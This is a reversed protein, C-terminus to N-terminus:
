DLDSLDPPPISSVRELAVVDAGRERAAAVAWEYDDLNGTEYAAAALLAYAATMAMRESQLQLLLVHSRLDRAVRRPGALRLARKLRRYARGPEGRRLELRAWLTDRELRFSAPRDEFLEDVGSLQEAAIRDRQQDLYLRALTLRIAANERVLETEDDRLWPLQAAEPPEGLPADLARLLEREAAATRGEAILDLARYRAFRKPSTDVSYFHALTEGQPDLTLETPEFDTNIEFREAAGRLMLQGTQVTRRGADHVSESDPETETPTLRFPVMLATSAGAEDQDTGRVLEWVDGAGPELRLRYHPDRLRRAEGTVVWGDGEASREIQYDYYVLPVGTGYIYQAAFGQLDLGSMREMAELFSETTIVRNSAAEVLSRLMGLFADEGVARALMALVVAGKRYVIARYGNSAESSNLRNGLVIPGLSEVTRGSEVTQELSARWGASM